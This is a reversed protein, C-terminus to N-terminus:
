QDYKKLNNSSIMSQLDAIYETGRESYSTLGNALAYGTNTNGKLRLNARITRLRRYRQHTNLNDVYASISERVSDYMAVQFKKGTARAKPVLGDGDYTRLGFLNNGHRAFRSTGWASENAAQALILSPAIIDARRLLRKAFAADLEEPAELGYENALKVLWRDDFFGATDGDLLEDRIQLLRKRDKLIADNVATIHPLLYGFFAAKKEKTSEHGSFDPLQEGRFSSWVWLGIAIITTGLVWRGARGSRRLRHAFNGSTASSENM